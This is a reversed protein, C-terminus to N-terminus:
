RSVTDKEFLGQPAKPPSQLHVADPAHGARRRSGRGAHDQRHWARGQHAAATAADPGRQRGTEFRQHRRLQRFGPLPPLSAHADIETLFFLDSYLDSRPLHPRVVLARNWTSERFTRPNSDFALLAITLNKCEHDGIMVSI